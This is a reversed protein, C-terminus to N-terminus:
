EFIDFDEEDLEPTDVHIVKGQATSETSIEETGGKYYIKSYSSAIANIKAQSYVEARAYGRTSIAVNQAKLDYAYLKSYNSLEAKLTNSQGSLTVKSYISQDLDISETELDKTTLRAYGNLKCELSDTSGSLTLRSGTGSLSCSTSENDIAIEARAYEGLSIYLDNNFSPIETRSYGIGVFSEINPMTIEAEIDKRFCFMCIKDGDERSKQKIQLQGEEMNFNLRDLDRDRGTMTVSFKDGQKVTTNIHNGIYLKQFDEYSYERTITEEQEMEEIQSVIRPALEGGAVTTATIAIIWVGVLVGSRVVSFTNRRKIMSWSVSIFFLLPILAVLYASSVGIYYMISNTLEHLPIDSILYPSNINFLLLGTTVTLSIIASMFSILLIIGIFISLVPVVAYIVKEIASLIAGLIKVPFNLIKYLISKNKGIKNLAEKSEKTIAKSKEKVVQEIKKLNVPRGKMELKQISTKAIPMVIWLVIYAIVGFGKTFILAVFILRIIIPDINFYNAIGSCVGAIIKDEPDRYLKKSNTKTTNTYDKDTNEQTPESFEEVTGMVKIVSSVDKKNIHRKKTNIKEAFKEAISSEIDSLIELSEKSDNYHKKISELYGDLMEYADEQIQFITNNITISITKEM